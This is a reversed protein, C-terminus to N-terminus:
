ASTNARMAERRDREIWIRESVCPKIGFMRKNFWNMALYFVNCSRPPFPLRGAEALDCYRVAYADLIVDLEEMSTTLKEITLDSPIHLRNSGPPLIAIGYKRLLRHGRAMIRQLEPDDGRWQLPAGAHLGDSGDAPLTM